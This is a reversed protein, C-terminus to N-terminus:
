EPGLLKRTVSAIWKRNLILHILAFLGMFVGSMDHLVSIPTGPLAMSATHLFRAFGPLKVIGTVFCVLFSIGLGIDVLYKKKVTGSVPAMHM